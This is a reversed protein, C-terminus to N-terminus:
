RVSVKDPGPFDAPIKQTVKGTAAWETGRQFTAIFGVCSMSAPDHGLVTHFVRGKGYRIVFLVPETEGTGRTAKDSFATALVKMNEAPGRLNAYLEDQEHMWVPPLGKMIPHKGDRSTVQYATQQGHTGASGPTMDRVFKGDRFRLYPGTKENGGWRLGIMKTFEGWSEFANDAAHFIVLGGGARVYTELATRTATSWADGNYNSVVVRYASFDPRFASMDGGAPPATAVDVAFLGTEELQKKMVPTTAQWKHNNQGDVILVKLGAAQMLMLSSFLLVIFRAM